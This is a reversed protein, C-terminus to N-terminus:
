CRKAAGTLLRVRTRLRPRAPTSSATSSSRWAAPAGRLCAWASARTRRPWWARAQRARGRDAGPDRRRECPQPRAHATTPPHQCCPARAVAQRGTRNARHLCCEARVRGRCERSWDKDYRCSQLTACRCGRRGSCVAGQPRPPAGCQAGREWCFGAFLPDAVRALANDVSVCDVAEVGAGAMDALVGRRRGGSSKVSWAKPAVTPWRWRGAV